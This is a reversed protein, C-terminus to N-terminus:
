GNSGIWWSAASSNNVWPNTTYFNEYIGDYIQASMSQYFILNTQMGFNAWPKDIAVVTKLKGGYLFILITIM